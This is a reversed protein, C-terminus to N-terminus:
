NDLQKKLQLIETMMMQIMERMEKFQDPPEMPNQTEWFNQFSNKNTKPRNQELTKNTGAELDHSFGCQDGFQCTKGDSITKCKPVTEPHNIKRHKLFQSQYRFSEECVNCKFNTSTNSQTGDSHDYLCKEGNNAGNRCTNDAKYICKVKSKGHANLRHSILSSKVSFEQACSVCKFNVKQNNTKGKMNHAVEFHNELRSKDTTQHDCEDCNYQKESQKHFEEHAELTDKTEFNRSCKTCRFIFDIKKPHHKDTHDTLLM